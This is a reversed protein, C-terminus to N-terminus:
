HGSLFIYANTMFHDASQVSSAKLKSANAYDNVHRCDTVEWGALFRGASKPDVFWSM